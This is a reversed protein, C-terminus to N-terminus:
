IPSGFDCKSFTGLSPQGQTQVKTQSIGAPVANFLNLTSEDKKNENNLSVKSNFVFKYLDDEDKQLDDHTAVPQKYEQQVPQKYEQKVPQIFRNAELANSGNLVATLGNLVNGSSGALGNLGNLYNKILFHIILIILIMLIANKLALSFM